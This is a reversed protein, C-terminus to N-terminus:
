VSTGDLKKLRDAYPTVAGDLKRRFQRLEQEVVRTSAERQRHELAPRQRDSSGDAERFVHELHESGSRM